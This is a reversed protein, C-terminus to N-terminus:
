VFIGLAVLLREQGSALDTGDEPPLKPCLLQCLSLVDLSALLGQNSKVQKALLQNPDTLCCLAEFAAAARDRTTDMATMLV